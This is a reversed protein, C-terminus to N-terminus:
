WCFPFVAGVRCNSSRVGGGGVRKPAKRPPPVTPAPSSADPQAQASLADRNPPSESRALLLNSENKRWRYGIGFELPSARQFLEAMGPQYFNAFMSIPGAYHGFAQVRWKTADFYALPIGSDDQVITASNNLLLKRVGAFHGNHLLYSASKILSDAPGLRALFASLGSREFSGDALNTSFYYLTQRPGGGDSFVIEVGSAFSRQVVPKTVDGGAASLEETVHLSGQEDLHVYHVQNITKGTRALFVYLVPLTGYIPGERLQTKMKHTIFFSFSFLSSMSAELSRLEGGIVFAGLSTPDPVAGVPELGALVYTSANPFFSTAYLFDPGSFMYFMTNQKDTLYTRSFERVKSLQVSDERAFISNLNRAHSLWAPDNTFAALPSSSSLPLGAL